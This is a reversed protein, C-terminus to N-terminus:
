WQGLLLNFEISSSLAYLASSNSSFCSTKGSFVIPFVTTLFTGKGWTYNASFDEEVEIEERFNSSFNYDKFEVNPLYGTAIIDSIHPSIEVASGFHAKNWEWLCDSFKISNNLSSYLSRTSFLKTGGGYQAVNATM